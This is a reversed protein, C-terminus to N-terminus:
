EIHDDYQVVKFPPLPTCIPLLKLLQYIISICYIITLGYQSFLLYFDQRHQSRLGLSSRVITMTTALRWTGSQGHFFATSTGLVTPGWQGLSGSQRPALRYLARLQSTWCIKMLPASLKISNMNALIKLLLSICRSRRQQLSHVSLKEMADKLGRGNNNTIFHIANIQM